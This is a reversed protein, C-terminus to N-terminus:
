KQVEIRKVYLPNVAHPNTSEEGKLYAYVKEYDISVDEIDKTSKEYESNKLYQYEGILHNESDFTGIFVGNKEREIINIEQHEFSVAKVLLSSITKIPKNLTYALTKAITVGLRVGTFSGPGNVVFIEDIDEIEINAKKLSEILVPMTTISHNQHTEKENVVLVKDSKYIVICIKDTHTDIYLTYM